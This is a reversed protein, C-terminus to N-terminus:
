YRYEVSFWARLHDSLFADARYAALKGIVTWHPAIPRSLQLDLERGYSMGGRAADFEHVAALYRWSGLPGDLKIYRDTLGGPPTVLFRDAWGNFAHGTALPTQYARRGNSDLQEVGLRLGHGRLRAGAEFMVYDVHGTAPADRWGSQRAVEGAYLWELAGAPRSGVLRVGHTRTSAQPLDRNEVLFAYASAAGLPTRLGGQLLHADLAQEAQLPLPHANGAVRHVRDIWAYRLSARDGFAHSAALADFTQENQRWGVNGVHRQNDFLLRQRGATVQTGRGSDWGVYAQNWESGEPDLVLPYRTRGNASSNYDAVLARVDEAEALVFVGHLSGSRWGLRTRLTLANADRDFADDRVHEGRLRVDLLLKGDEFWGAAHAPPALALLAALCGGAGHRLLFSAPIKM